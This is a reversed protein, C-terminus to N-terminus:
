PGLRSPTKGSARPMIGAMEELTKQRPYLHAGSTQIRDPSGGQGFSQIKNGKSLSGLSSHMSEPFSDLNFHAPDPPLDAVDSQLRTLNGRHNISLPLPSRPRTRLGPFPPSPTSPNITADESPEFIRIDHSKLRSRRLRPNHGVTYSRPSPTPSLDQRPTYTTFVRGPPSNGGRGIIDDYHDLPGSPGSPKEEHESEYQDLEDDTYDTYFESEEDESESSQAKHVPRELERARRIYEQAFEVQSSYKNDIFKAHSEGDSSPSISRSPSAFTTELPANVFGSDDRLFIEPSQDMQAEVDPFLRAANKKGLEALLHTFNAQQGATSDKSITQPILINGGSKTRPTHRRGAGGPFSSFADGMSIDGDGKKTELYRILFADGPYYGEENQRYFDDQNQRFRSREWPRLNKFARATRQEIYESTM